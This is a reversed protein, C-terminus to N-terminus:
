YQKKLNELTPEKQEYKLWYSHTAHWREGIFDKRFLRGLLALPGIGFFYLLTLIVTTVIKSMVMGIARLPRALWTNLFAKM